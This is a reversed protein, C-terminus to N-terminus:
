NGYIGRYFKIFAKVSQKGETTQFFKPLHGELGQLKDPASLWIQEEETLGLGISQLLSLQPEPTPAVGIAGKLAALEEAFVERLMQKLDGASADVQPGVSQPNAQARLLDIQSQLQTLSQTM